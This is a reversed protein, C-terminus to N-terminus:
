PAPRNPWLRLVGFLVLVRTTAIVGALVALGTRDVEIQHSIEVVDLVGAVVAFAAVAALELRVPRRWVGVALGVTVVTLAAVAGTSELPSEGTEGDAAPEEHGAGSATAQDRHGDAGELSVGLILLAASVVLLLGM